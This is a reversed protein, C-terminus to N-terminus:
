QNGIIQGMCVPDGPNLDNCWHAAEPGFLVIVTSGWQFYGLEDGKQLTIASDEYIIDTKKGQSNPMVVGHWSTVVSGILCAGVLIVAMPGNATAFLCVVRENRSFLKPISRVSIANVSFLEGAVHYMQRLVGMVPMHVRHYNKPALYITIFGGQDFYQSTQGQDNFLERLSYNLGKAQILKGSEIHGLESIFGDAPSAIATQDQPLKRSGPKLKRIFFDNFCSFENIDTILSESLDVAYYASFCRIAWNKFPKFRWHSLRALCRSLLHKPIIKQLFIFM